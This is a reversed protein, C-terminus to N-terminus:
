TPPVRKRLQIWHNELVAHALPEPLSTWPTHRASRPPTKEGGPEVAGGMRTMEHVGECPSTLCRSTAAAGGPQAHLPPRRGSPATKEAGGCCRGSGCCGPLCGLSQCVGSWARCAAGCGRHPSAGGRGGSVLRRPPRGQTPPHPPPQGPCVCPCNRPRAAAAARCCHCWHWCM